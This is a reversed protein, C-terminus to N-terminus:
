LTIVANELHTAVLYLVHALDTIRESDSAHPRIHVAVAEIATPIPARGEMKCNALTNAINALAPHWTKARSATM